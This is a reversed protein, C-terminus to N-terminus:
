GQQQPRPQAQPLKALTKEGAAVPLIRNGNSGAARNGLKGDDKHYRDRAHEMDGARIIGVATPHDGRRVAQQLRQLGLVCRRDLIRRADNRIKPLLNGDTVVAAKATRHRIEAPTEPPGIM